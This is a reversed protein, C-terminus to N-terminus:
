DRAQGAHAAGIFATAILLVLAVTGSHSLHPPPLGAAPKVILLVTTTVSLGIIWALRAMSTRRSVAATALLAVLVGVLVLGVAAWYGAPEGMLEFISGGRDFPPLFAVVSLGVAIPAYFRGYRDAVDGPTLDPEPEFGPTPPPATLQPPDDTVPPRSDPSTM